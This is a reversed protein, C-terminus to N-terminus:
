GLILSDRTDPLFATNNHDQYQNVQVVEEGKRINEVPNTKTDSMKEIVVLSSDNHRNRDSPRQRSKMANTGKGYQNSSLM